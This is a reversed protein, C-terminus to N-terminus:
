FLVTALSGVQRMGLRAYIRRAPTNFQNVYLSATPALRLAHLLVAALAATGLGRGRLEPRVWVGQLQCTDATLAGIDAKFAMQGDRDVIGFARGCALLSDVRRRYSPGARGAFPSIGLEEAFMAAAAPLYRGSDAPHMVRVRADPDAGVPEGRALALLPQDDRIARAPGWAHELAGWMAAVADARGVISTCVRSLSSLHLALSEWCLEDGGVPLLSGGHFAAGLLRGDREARAELLVGGLAPPDLARHAVVRSAIVANVLPDADILREVDRRRADTALGVLCGATTPAPRVFTM